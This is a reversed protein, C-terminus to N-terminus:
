KDLVDFEPPNGFRLAVPNALAELKTQLAEIQERIPNEGVRQKAKALERVLASYKKGIPQLEVRLACLTQSLEVRKPLDVTTAKVRPDMKVPLPQTFTKGGASLVVSYNGPVVWPAT